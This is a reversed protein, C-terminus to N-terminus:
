LLFALRDSQRQSLPQTALPRTALSLETVQLGTRVAESVLSLETRELFPPSQDFRSPLYIYCAAGVVRRPKFKRSTYGEGEVSRSM